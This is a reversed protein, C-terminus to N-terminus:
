APWYEVGFRLMELFGPANCALLAMCSLAAAADAPRGDLGRAHILMFLAPFAPWCLYLSYLLMGNEGAGYGIFFTSVVAFATWVLAIRSWLSRRVKWCSAVALVLVVAGTLSVGETPLQAWRVAGPFTSGDPGSAPLALVSRFMMLGQLVQGPFGSDCGGAFEMRSSLLWTFGSLVSFRLSLVLLFGGGLMGRLVRVGVRKAPRDSSLDERFGPLFLLLIASLVMTGVAGTVVLAGPEERRALFFLLLAMWFFCVAYQEPFISFLLFPAVCSAVAVYRSRARGSLGISSAMLVNGALVATAQMPVLCVAIAKHSGGLLAAALYSIGAFPASFLGSLPQHIGNEMDSLSAYSFCRVLYESDMQYLMDYPWGTGYALSTSLHFVCGIGCALLLIVAYGRKEQRSPRIGTQILSGWLAPWFSELLFFVGIGAGMALTWVFLKDQFPAEGRVAVGMHGYLSRVSKAWAIGLASSASLAHVLFSNRLVVDTIPDMYATAYFLAAMALLVDVCGSPSFGADLLYFCLGCPLLIWNAKLNVLRAKPDTRPLFGVTPFDNVRVVGKM